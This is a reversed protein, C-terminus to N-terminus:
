DSDRLINWRYVGLFNSNGDVPRWRPQPHALLERITPRRIEGKTTGIPGTHYVVYPQRNSEFHSVGIYIMAHFPMTQDLQRFFFLDGPRAAALERSVLHTNHQRLTEADAFARLAGGGAAFLNSGWPWRPYQYQPVSPFPPAVELGIEGAWAGDHARLTERYAFRILGACDSIERPLDKSPRYFQAEALFTFWGRFAERDAASDLRPYTSTVLSAFLVGALSFTTGL